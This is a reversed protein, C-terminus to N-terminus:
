LKIPESIGQVRRAIRSCAAAAGKKSVTLLPKGGNAADSVSNDQPVVGLLATGTEDMIDDITIKRKALERPDVRNVLLRVQTKELRELEEALRTSGRISAPEPDTVIWFSDAYKATVCFGRGLGAPCDVLVYRFKKKAKELLKAWCKEDVNQWTLNVPATLFRLNEFEPHKLVMDIGYAGSYVDAFSLADLEQVGLAIDLNRLGADADICLVTKGQAALAQGIAACLSTKGTGGKGSVIAIVEGM